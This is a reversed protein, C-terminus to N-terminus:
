PRRERRAAERALAEPESLWGLGEQAMWGTLAERAEAPSRVLAFRAGLMAALRRQERSLRGAAAKVEIYTTVGGPWVFSLDPAGRELGAAKARAILAPPLAVGSLSATWWVEGPLYARLMAAIRRQIEAEARRRSPQLRFDCVRHHM